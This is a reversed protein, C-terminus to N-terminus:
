ETPYGCEPLHYEGPKVLRKIVDTMIQRSVEEALGLYYRRVALSKRHRLSEQPTRRNM